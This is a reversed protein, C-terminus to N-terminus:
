LTAMSFLHSLIELYKLVVAPYHTIFKPLYIKLQAPDRNQFSLKDKDKACESVFSVWTGDRILVEKDKLHDEEESDDSIEM